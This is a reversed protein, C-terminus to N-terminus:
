DPLAYPLPLAEVSLAAAESSQPADADPTASAGEPLAAVALFECYGEPRSAALVVKFSRGDALQGADGPALRCPTRSLFRQMRRKVRGRYHARAIVEQGTYCGKDFAIAGIADLNLMQAVFQESTAASIQPVGEAIDLRLWDQSGDREAWRDFGLEPAAAGAPCVLLWRPSGWGVQALVGEGLRTQADRASRLSPGAPAALEGICGGVRWSELEATIQVKARLIYRALRSVLTAALDRPVIALIDQADLQLLRLLAIARGQPNHYGGLLSREASLQSVDSSLQGQLFRIVDPGRMRVIGLEDLAILERSQM